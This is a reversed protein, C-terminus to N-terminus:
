ASFPGVMNGCDRYAHIFASCLAGTAIAVSEKGAGKGHYGCTADRAKGKLGIM